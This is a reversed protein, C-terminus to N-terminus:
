LPLKERNHHIKDFSDASSLYISIVRRVSWLAQQVRCYAATSAAAPPVHLIYASGGTGTGEELMGFRIELCVITNPVSNSDVATKSDHLSSSM